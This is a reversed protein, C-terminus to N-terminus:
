LFRLRYEIACDESEFIIEYDFNVPYDQFERVRELARRMLFVSKPTAALHHKSRFWVNLKRLSCWDLVVDIDDWTEIEPLDFRLMGETKPIPVASKIM